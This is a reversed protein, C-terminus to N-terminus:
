LWLHWSLCRLLSFSITLRSSLSRTQNHYHYLTRAEQVIKKYSSKFLENQFFLLVLMGSQETNWTLHNGHYKVRQESISVTQQYPHGVSCLKVSTRRLGRPSGISKTDTVNFKLTVPHVFTLSAKWIIVCVSEFSDVQFKTRVNAPPWAVYSKFKPHSDEFKPYM